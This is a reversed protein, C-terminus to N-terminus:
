FSTEQTRLNTSFTLKTTQFVAPRTEYGLGWSHLSCKYKSNIKLETVVFSEAALGFIYKGLFALTWISYGRQRFRSALEPVTELHRKRLDGLKLRRDSWLGWSQKLTIKLCNWTNDFGWGWCLVVCRNPKVRFHSQLGWGVWWWGGGVSVKWASRSSSSLQFKACVSM